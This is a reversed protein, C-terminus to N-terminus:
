HKNGDDKHQNRIKAVVDEPLNGFNRAAMSYDHGASRGVNDMSVVRPKTACNGNVISDVDVHFGERVKVESYVKEFATMESENRPPLYGSTSLIKNIISDKM